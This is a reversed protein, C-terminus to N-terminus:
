SELHPRILVNSLKESLYDLSGPDMLSGGDHVTYTRTVEVRSTILLVPIRAAEEESKLAATLQRNTESSDDGDIVIVSPRETVALAIADESDVSAIFEVGLLDCNEAVSAFVPSAAAGSPGSRVYLLTRPRNDDLCESLNLGAVIQESVQASDATASMFLYPALSLIGRVSDGTLTVAIRPISSTAPNESLSALADLGNFSTMMMNVVIADPKHLRARQLADAASEAEIVGYGRRHLHHQVLGRVYSADDVVLVLGIGREPLSTVVRSHSSGEAQSIPLTFYFRSGSGAESEVWISGGLLEVLTKAIVLGLGTGGAERTTTNDARFFKQFLMKQDDPSIGIGSDEVCTTLGSDGVVSVSIKVWGERPTYKIANSVLNTIIQSVKDSDGRAHPLSEPIVIKIEIGKEAAMASMQRVTDNVIANYDIPEHKIELGGSEIKSIDLIDNILNTLRTTSAQIFGLFESQLSTIEGAATSLLLDTYGKISTLPTRLEHSVVGIFDTKMSDLEQERTVDRLVVIRGIRDLDNEGLVPATYVQLFRREGALMEIVRESVHETRNDVKDFSMLDDILQQARAFRENLSPILDVLTSTLIREESVGILECFRRNALVFLNQHDLLAIGDYTTNLVSQLRHNLSSLTSNQSHLVNERAGIVDAMHNFARVVDNYEDERTELDIKINYVGREFQEASKRLANLRSTISGTLFRGAMFAPLAMGSQLLWLRHDQTPHLHLVAVALPVCLMIAMPVIYVLQIRNAIRRSFLM